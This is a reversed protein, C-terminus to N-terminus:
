AFFDFCKVCIVRLELGDLNERKPPIKKAGHKGITRKSFTM